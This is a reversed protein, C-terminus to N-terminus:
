HAETEHKHAQTRAHNCAQMSAHSGAPTCAHRTCHQTANGQRHPLRSEEAMRAERCTPVDTRAFTRSLGLLRQGRAPTCRMAGCAAQARMGHACAGNAARWKRPWATERKDAVEHASARWERVAHAAGRRAGGTHRRTATFNWALGKPVPSRLAMTFVNTTARRASSVFPEQLARGACPGQASM